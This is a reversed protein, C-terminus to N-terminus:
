INKDCFGWIILWILILSAATPIITEPIMVNNYFSYRLLCVFHLLCTSFFCALLLSVIRVTKIVSVKYLLGAFVLIFMFSIMIYNLSTTTVYLYVFYFPEFIYRLASQNGKVDHVVIKTKPKEKMLEFVTKNNGKSPILTWVNMMYGLGHWDTTGFMPLNNKSCIDILKQRTQDSIYRYGCNYIEFGDIGWDVLQQLDPRHWKWWHPMVVLMGKSHSLDIMEKISKDKFEEYKFYNDSLLLISVGEKTRIQIGPFIHDTGVDVPITKYGKTNDHETVFYDTFGHGKHFKISSLMSSINDRSSITHSHVDAIKYGRINTIKPGIVPLIIVACCLSVFFFFSFCCLIITNKLKFSKYRCFLISGLVLWSLWSALAFPYGTREMTLIYYAFAYFPETFFRIVPWQLVINNLREGTVVDIINSSYFIINLVVSIIIIFIFTYIRKM